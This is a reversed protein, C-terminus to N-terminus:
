QPGRVDPAAEAPLYVLSGKRGARAWVKEYVAELTERGVVQMAIENALEETHLYPHHTFIWVHGLEHAVIAEIEAETLSDLFGNEISLAFARPNDKAREVSVVLENQEVISVVVDDRITLRSRLVDAVDQIRKERVVLPERAAPGTRADNRSLKGASAKRPLLVPLLVLPIGFLLSLKLLRRVIRRARRKGAPPEPEAASATPSEDTKM